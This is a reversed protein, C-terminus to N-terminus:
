GRSKQAPSRSPRAPACRLPVAVTQTVGDAYTHTRHFTWQRSPPCTAPSVLLGSSAPITFTESSVWAGEPGLGPLAPIPIDISSGDITGKDVLGIGTRSERGLFLIQGGANILSLDTTVAGLAGPL